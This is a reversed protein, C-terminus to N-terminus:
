LNNSYAKQVRKSKKLQILEHNIESKKSEAMDIAQEYINGLKKLENQETLTLEEKERFLEAILTNQLVQM